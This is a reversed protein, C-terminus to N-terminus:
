PQVVIPLEGKALALTRHTWEGEVTPNAGEPMRYYLHRWVTLTHRGASLQALDEAIDQGDWSLTNWSPGLHEDAVDFATGSIRVGDLYVLTAVKFQRAMAPLAGIADSLTCPHYSRGWFSAPAENQKMVLKALVDEAQALSGDVFALSFAMGGVKGSHRYTAVAAAPVPRYGPHPAAHGPRFGPGLLVLAITPITLFRRTSRSM